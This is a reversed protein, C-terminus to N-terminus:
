ISSVTMRDKSSETPLVPALPKTGSDAEFQKLAAKLEQIELDQKEIVNQRDNIEAEHASAESSFQRIMEENKAMTKKHDIKEQHEAEAILDPFHVDGVDTPASMIAAIVSDRAGKKRMYRALVKRFVLPAFVTAYLLAWVLIAFLEEDMMKLSKAYIAIFYAFEARGVMAWGIVWRADGMFPGCFVKCAICPGIGMLSGKWFAELSFLSKVPISWALTCSFFIRLFWVTNRKVQRVWVHHAEHRTAFSMGAIFCGWLHTGCMFTIQGYVILTVFLILFMVEHHRTLKAEAKTEPIKSFIWDLVPPWVLVAAPIALAMFVCGLILPVFDMIVPDGGGITFLVSFIILSLVDDVFAATMVAQGFYESLARAENLLKLAIGVSTPALSVGAAMSSTMDFGFAVSLATGSIIPLFTGLVAVVSAWPGVTMAQDFDFHMGSEFIMMGVGIHGTLTFIDPVSATNLAQKLTCSDVVCKTYTAHETKGKKSKGALRRGKRGHTGLYEVFKASDVAGWYDDYKNAAVYAELDCYHRGENTVKQQYKSHSDDCQYTQDYFSVTLEEPILGLVSPGLVLGVAVEMVISSVGIVQSVKGAIWVSTLFLAIAIMAYWSGGAM